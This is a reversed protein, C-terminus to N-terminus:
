KKKGNKTLKLYAFYIVSFFLFYFIVNFLFLTAQTFFFATNDNLFFAPNPIPVPFGRTAPYPVCGMWSPAGSCKSGPEFM